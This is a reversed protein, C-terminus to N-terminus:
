PEGTAFRILEAVSGAESRDRYEDLIERLADDMRSELYDAASAGSKLVFAAYDRDLNFRAEESAILKDALMWAEADIVDHNFLTPDDAKLGCAKVQEDLWARIHRILSRRVGEGISLKFACDTCDVRVLWGIYGSRRAHPARSLAHRGLFGPVCCNYARGLYVRWERLHPAEKPILRGHEREPAVMVRATTM